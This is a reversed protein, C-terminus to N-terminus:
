RSHGLYQLWAVKLFYLVQWHFGLSTLKAHSKADTPGTIDTMEAPNTPRLAM